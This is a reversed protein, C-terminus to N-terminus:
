TRQNNRRNQQNDNARNQHIRLFFHRNNSIELAIATMGTLRWRGAVGAQLLAVPESNKLPRIRMAYTLSGIRDQEILKGGLIEGNQKIVFLMSLHRAHAVVALGTM